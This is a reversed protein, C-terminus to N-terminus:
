NLISIVQKTIEKWVGFNRSGDENTLIFLINDKEKIRTDPLDLSLLRAKATKRKGLKMGLVGTHQYKSLRESFDGENWPL